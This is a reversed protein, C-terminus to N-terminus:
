TDRKQDLIEKNDVRLQHLEAIVERRAKEHLGKRWKSIKTQLLISFQLIDLLSGLVLIAILLTLGSDGLKSVIWTEHDM